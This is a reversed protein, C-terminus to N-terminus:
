YHWPCLIEEVVTVGFMKESVKSESRASNGRYNKMYEPVFREPARNAIFLVSFENFHEKFSNSVYIYVLALRFFAKFVKKSKKWWWIDKIKKRLLSIRGVAIHICVPQM